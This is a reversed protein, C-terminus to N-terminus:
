LGLLGTWSSVLSNSAIYALCSSFQLTVFIAGDRVVAVPVFGRFMGSLVLLYRLFM